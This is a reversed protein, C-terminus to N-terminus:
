PKKNCCSVQARESDGGACECNDKVEEEFFKGSDQKKLPTKKAFSSLLKGGRINVSNMVFSTSPSVSINLPGNVIAPPLDRSIEDSNIAGSNDIPKDRILM